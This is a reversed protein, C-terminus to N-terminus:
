NNVTYHTVINIITYPVLYVTSSLYPTIFQASSWRSTPLQLPELVLTPAANNGKAYQCSKWSSAFVSRHACDFTFLLRTENIISVPIMQCGTVQLSVYVDAASYSCSVTHADKFSHNNNPKKKWYVTTTLTQFVTEFNKGAWFSSHFFYFFFYISVFKGHLKTFVTPINMCKVKQLHLSKYTTNWM